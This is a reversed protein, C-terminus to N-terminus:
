GGRGERDIQRDIEGPRDMFDCCLSFCLAKNNIVRSVHTVFPELTGPEPIHYQRILLQLVESGVEVSDECYELNVDVPDKNGNLSQMAWTYRKVASSNVDPAHTVNQKYKVKVISLYKWLPSHILCYICQVALYLYRPHTGCPSLDFLM